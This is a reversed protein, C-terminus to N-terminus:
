REAKSLNSLSFPLPKQSKEKFNQVVVFYLIFVANEITVPNSIDGMYNLVMFINVYIVTISFVLNLFLLFLVQFLSYMETYYDM